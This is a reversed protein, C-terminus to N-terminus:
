GKLYLASFNFNGTWEPCTIMMVATPTIKRSRQKKKDKENLRSRQTVEAVMEIHRKEQRHKLRSFFTRLKM